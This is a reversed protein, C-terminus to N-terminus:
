QGGSNINLGGGVGGGGAPAEQVREFVVLSKRYDALARLEANQADRLDRQAQVVFFNVSMGVEFKSQEAELRKEALERAAVAAEVRKLNSQVALAANTVETAVQLELARLRAQSQNKQVRARAYQAEAASGWLNHSITFQVNWNPYDLNSLLRLADRYGGPNTSVVPGGLGARTIQTGGIGQGGYSAVLDVEPLTNNRFYRLSIDSSELNKRSSILDTRRELSRRVAAEIDTRAPELSPLDIPRLEHRWLPDETGNVIYRKLALEATQLTAEAVALAQRRNASEAEAQVIDLPALTGVEVRAKNDEVFKDALQLARQAVDVSSRAFVLDWYANRVNALTQTVTARLTEEAVERNIQTVALQQRSQDIFLGRLLPQTYTATLSTVFQPNFTIFSSSSDQKNNNWTLAFTGGYWPLNQTLGANYTTTAISVRQGGQLQDRPLLFFDRQGIASTAVPLYSNKIGAIQLDVAQPNLREVAIDLNKELALEIVDTLRIDRVPRSTQAANLAAPGQEGKQIAELGAEYRALADRVLSDHTQAGGALPQSTAAQAVRPNSSSQASASVAWVLFAAAAVVSRSQMKM